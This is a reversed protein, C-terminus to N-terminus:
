DRLEYTVSVSSDIKLQGIPIDANDALGEAEAVSQVMNTALNRQRGIPALTSQLEKVIMPKGIKSSLEAAMAEAKERSAKIALVRAQDKVKRPNSLDFRLSDISNAGADIADALLPPVSKLDRVILTVEKEIRFSNLKGGPEYSLSSRAQHSSSVSIESIQIDKKEIHYKDPIKLIQKLTTDNELYGSRLDKSWTRVGLVIIAEDPATYITGTGSSTITRAGPPLQMIQADQAFVAQGVMSVLSLSALLFRIRHDIM